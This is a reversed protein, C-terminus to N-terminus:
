VRFMTPIDDASVDIGVTDGTKFGLRRFERIVEDHREQRWFVSWIPTRVTDIGYADHSCLNMRLKVRAILTDAESLFYDIMSGHHRLAESLRKQMPPDDDLYHNAVQYLDELVEISLGLVAFRQHTLAFDKMKQERGAVAGLIDEITPPQGSCGLLLDECLGIIEIYFAKNDMVFIPRERYNRRRRIRRIGDLRISRLNEEAELIEINSIDKAQVGHIEGDISIIYEIECRFGLYSQIEESVQLLRRDHPTQTIYPDRHVKQGMGSGSYGFEWHNGLMKAMVSVGEIYPMVIVGMLDLDIEPARNFKQQRLISLRKSTRASSIMHNRAYVIGSIDAYTQISDFTGGKFYREMPHASRAIVKFSERYRALFLELDGFNKTEFCEASIFIFDPVNFGGEKLKELLLTKEPYLEMM